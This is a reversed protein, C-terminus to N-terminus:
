PSWSGVKLNKKQPSFSPRFSAPTAPGCLSLTLTIVDGGKPDPPRPAPGIPPRPPGPRIPTPNPHDLGRRSTQPPRPDPGIPPRPSGHRIPYRCPYPSGSGVRRNPPGLPRASLPRPTPNPHDRGPSTSPGRSFPLGVRAMRPAAEKITPEFAQLRTRWM